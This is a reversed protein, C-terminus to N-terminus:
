PDAGCERRLRRVGAGACVLWLRAAAAARLTLLRWVPLRLLLSRLPRWFSHSPGPCPLACSLGAPCRCACALPSLQLSKWRIAACFTSMAPACLAAQPVQFLFFSLFLSGVKDPLCMFFISSVLTKQPTKLVQLFVCGPPFPVQTTNSRLAAAM